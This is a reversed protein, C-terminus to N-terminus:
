NRQWRWCANSSAHRAPNGAPEAWNTWNFAMRKLATVPSCNSIRWQCSSSTAVRMLSKSVTTHPVWRQLRAFVTSGDLATSPTYSWIASRCRPRRLSSMRRRKSGSAHDSWGTVWFTRNPLSVYNRLRSDASSLALVCIGVTDGPLALADHFTDVKRAKELGREHILHVLRERSGQTWAAVITRTNQALRAKLHGVVSGFLDGDNAQREPAFNRGVTGAFDRSAGPEPLEFPHFRGVDRQPWCNLGSMATSSCRCRRSPKTPRHVSHQRKWHKPAHRTTNMSKNLDSDFPMTRWITSRLQPQKSTTSCLRWRTMSFVAALTGNGSLPQGVSVAEYLPDDGTAGGFQHVYRQRFLKTADDSQPVESIPLLVFKQVLKSTRQTRADFVKISELTDGFFDLRLPNSRGPPFLDLIGGRVAYEGPEMVTGTRLFGGLQLRQVLRNMDIRQGPAIQRMAQRIFQRPPLRQLIANATTLVIMSEKGASLALRALSTIRKAVIEPNPGIRDYPVTDWAPLSVIRAKPAFFALTRELADLRRDDRAVHIIAGHQSAQGQDRLLQALALADYGEPTRTFWVDRTTPTALPTDQISM